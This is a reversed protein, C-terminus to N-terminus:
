KGWKRKQELIWSGIQQILQHRATVNLLWIVGLLVFGRSAVLWIDYFIQQYGMFSIDGYRYQYIGVRSDKGDILLFTLQDGGISEKIECRKYILGTGFANSMIRKNGTARYTIRNETHNTFTLLDAMGGSGKEQKAIYQVQEQRKGEDNLYYIDKGIQGFYRDSEKGNVVFYEEILSEDAGEIAIGYGVNDYEFPIIIEGKYDVIGVKSKGESVRIVSEHGNFFELSSYKYDLIKDGAMNFAGYKEEKICIFIKEEFDKKTSNEDNYIIVDIGESIVVGSNSILTRGDDGVYVFYENNFVFRSKELESNMYRDQEGKKTEFLIQDELNKVVYQKGDDYALLGNKYLYSTEGETQALLAGSKASYIWLQDEYYDLILTEDESFQPLNVGFSREGPFECLVDDTDILRLTCLGAQYHIRRKEGWINEEMTTVEASEDMTEYPMIDPDDSVESENESPTVTTEATETETGTETESEPETEAESEPETEPEPETELEPETEPETEVEPEITEELIVKGSTKFHRELMTGDEATQKGIYREKEADYILEEYELPIITESETIVGYKKDVYMGSNDLAKSIVGTGAIFQNETARSLYGYEPAIVEENAQDVIGVKGDSVMWYLDGEHYMGGYIINGTWPDLTDSKLPIVEKGEYDVAGAKNTQEDTVVILSFDDGAQVDKVEQEFWEVQFENGAIMIRSVLMVSVSLLLLRGMRNKQGRGKM